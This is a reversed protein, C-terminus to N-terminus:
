FEGTSSVTIYTSSYINEMEEKQYLYKEKKKWSLNRGGM